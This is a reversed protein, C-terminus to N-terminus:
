IIFMVIMILIFKLFIRFSLAWEIFCLKVFQPKKIIVEGNNEEKKMKLTVNINPVVYLVEAIAGLFYIVAFIICFVNKDAIEYFYFCSGGLSVSFAVSSAFLISFVMYHVKERVLNIINLLFVCVLAIIASIITVVQFGFRYEIPFLFVIYLCGLIGAVLLILLSLVKTKKNTEFPFTNLLSEGMNKNMQKYSLAFYFIFFAIASSLFAISLNNNM